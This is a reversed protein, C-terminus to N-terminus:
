PVQVRGKFGANFIGVAPLRVLSAVRSNRRANTLAKAADISSLRAPFFYRSDLRNM